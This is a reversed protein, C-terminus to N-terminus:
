QLYSKTEVKEGGNPSIMADLVNQPIDKPLRFIEDQTGAATVYNKHLGGMDVMSKSGIKLGTTIDLDGPQSWACNGNKTEVVLITPMDSIKRRDLPGSAPFLTGPGTILAYNTEYNQLADQSNPSCYQRPVERLLNSNAASDWAQTLEYRKYLDEYGLFPLILVRWSYLPKGNVDKVVPPPYNGYRDCYANLAKAISQLNDTDGKLSVRELGATISPWVGWIALSGGLLLTLMIAVSVAVPFLRSRQSRVESFQPRKGAVPQISAVLVGQANRVPMTVVRGCNACPGSQGVYQDHVKTRTHCHPCTFEFPM